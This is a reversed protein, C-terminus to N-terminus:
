IAVAFYHYLLRLMEKASDGERDPDSYKLICGMLGSWGSRANM